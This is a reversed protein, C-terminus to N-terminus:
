IGEVNSKSTVRVNITVAIGAIVVVMEANLQKAKATEPTNIPAGTNVEGSEIAKAEKHRKVIGSLDGGFESISQPTVQDFLYEQGAEEAEAELAIVERVAPYQSLIESKSAPLASAAGYLCLLGNVEAFCNIGSEELSTMQAESYTNVFGTIQPGLPWKIGAPAQDNNGTRSVRALLAAAVVSAPIIRTTGGAVGPAQAAQAFFVIREAIGSPITGKESKLTAPTTGVEAAGKLDALVLRKNARGHEAMAVHVTEETAASGLVLLQGPGLAKPLAEISTITDTASITPNVGGALKTSAVKKLKESKATSYESGESIVVYAEHSKGWELLESAKPYEGSKEVVEGEPNYVVLQTSSGSEKVEIKIGNGWTGKYKAKVTLVKKAGSSELGVEAQAPSGEGIIRKVYARAGELAFYRDLADWLAVSEGERPGFLEVAQSPSQVLWPTEPGYVAPAVIFLTGLQLSVGASQQTTGSTVVVGPM